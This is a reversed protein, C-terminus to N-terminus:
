LLIHCIPRLQRRDTRRALHPETRDADVMSHEVASAGIVLLRPSKTSSRPRATGHLSTTRAAM